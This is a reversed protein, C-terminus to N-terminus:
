VPIQFGSVCVDAMKKQGNWFRVPKGAMVQFGSLNDLKQITFFTAALIDQISSV